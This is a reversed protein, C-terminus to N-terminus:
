DEASSIKLFNGHALYENRSVDASHLSCWGQRGPAADQILARTIM